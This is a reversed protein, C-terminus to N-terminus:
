KRKALVGSRSEGADPDAREKRLTDFVNTNLKKTLSQDFNNANYYDRKFASNNNSFLKRLHADKQMENQRQNLASNSSPKHSGLGKKGDVVFASAVQMNSKENSKAETSTNNKNDTRNSITFYESILRTHASLAGEIDELSCSAFKAGEKEAM